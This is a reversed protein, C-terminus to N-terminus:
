LHRSAFDMIDVVEFPQKKPKGKEDVGWPATEEVEHETTL